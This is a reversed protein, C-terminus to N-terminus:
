DTARTFYVAEEKALALLGHRAIRARTYLSANESGATFDSRWGNVEVNGFDLPKMGPWLGALYVASAGGGAIGILLAAMYILVRGIM